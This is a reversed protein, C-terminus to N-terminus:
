AKCSQGFLSEKLGKSKLAARGTHQKNNCSRDERFLTKERDSSPNPKLPQSATNTPVTLTGTMKLPNVNRPVVIAVM